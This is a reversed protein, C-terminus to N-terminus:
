GSAGPVLVPEVGVLDIRRWHGARFRLVLAAALLGIYAALSAMLALVGGSYVRVGLWACPLFVGWALTVRAWMCWTTDGAARLAESLTLGFADFLQWVASLMLMTVGIGMLEIAQAPSGPAFLGVLQEPILLYVSGVSLMWAAAVGATLRVFRSVEDHAGRGIAEGVLVAGGSALGFAPMFSISNIQIMVNFAALATTGLSTVVLNVFLFFASFELFWNVGNPLGFRLVRLLEGRRLSRWVGSDHRVEAGYGRGRVFAVFAVLFGLWSAVVSAWAAGAVGFGPLGFRPEILLYNGVVNAVMTVVGVIMSIRTNGLGGYWNGLAEAGVAGGVSLIRIVMYQVLLDSVQSEYGLLPFLSEIVPLACLGLLAALAALILGYYAYRGVADLQGRGRLQATFSQLIFVTGFPLIIFAFTNLAGTTVAALSAEGLPAVMLADCFGVVSQTARALIIPWALSLLARLPSPSQASM